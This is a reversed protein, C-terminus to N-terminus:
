NDHYFKVETKTVKVWLPSTDGIYFIRESDGHLFKKRAALNGNTLDRLLLVDEKYVMPVMVKKGEIWIAVSEIGHLAFCMTTNLLFATILIFKKM